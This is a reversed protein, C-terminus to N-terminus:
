VVSSTFDFFFILSFPPNRVADRATSDDGSPFNTTTTVCWSPVGSSSATVVQEVHM